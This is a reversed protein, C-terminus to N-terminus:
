SSCHAHQPQHNLLAIVSLEQTIIPLEDDPGYVTELCQFTIPFIDTRTQAKDPM